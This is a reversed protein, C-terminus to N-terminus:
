WDPDLDSLKHRLLEYERHLKQLGDPGQNQDRYECLEVFWQAAISSITQAATESDDEPKVNNM